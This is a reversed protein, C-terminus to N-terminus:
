IIYDSGKKYIRILKHSQNNKETVNILKFIYNLTKDEEYKLWDRVMIGVDGRM